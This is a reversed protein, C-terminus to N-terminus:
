SALARLMQAVPVFLALGYLLTVGGGLVIGVIMPAFLRLRDARRQASQRYIGAAMRLARDRGITTESHWLAWRLFPPFRRAEPSDDAPLEGQVLGAALAQAGKTLRADGSAGAALRLAEELPTEKELLKAVTEAFNACREQFLVQSMGPIWTSDGITVAMSQSRRSRNWMRWFYWLLMAVPPVAVWYPLTDSLMQLVRLGSGSSIRLGQYVNELAPVFFLCFAVIGVYALSCVILPYFFAARLAYQSEDISEALRSSGHLATSLNGSRIGFQVLSRYPTPVTPEDDDLSEALSEGRSVRRAVTANIKELTTAADVELRGLGVDLPVGAAALAALQDNWAMFDDLTATHM